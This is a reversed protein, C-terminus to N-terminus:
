LLPRGQSRIARPDATRPYQDADDASPTPASPYQRAAPPNSPDTESYEPPTAPPSPPPQAPASPPTPPWRHSPAVHPHMLSTPPVRNSTRSIDLTYYEPWHAIAQRRRPTRRPYGRPAFGPTLLRLSGQEM